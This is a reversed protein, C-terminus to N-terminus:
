GRGGVGATAPMGVGQGTCAGPGAAARCQGLLPRPRCCLRKSNNRRLPVGRYWATPGMVAAPADRRPPPPPPVPPPSRVSRAVVEDYPARRKDHTKSLYIAHGERLYVVEDGLQPVYVGPTQSGVQSSASPADPHEPADIMGSVVGLWCLEL